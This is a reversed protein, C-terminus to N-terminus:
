MCLRHLIKREWHSNKTVSFSYIIQGLFGRVVVEKFFTKLAQKILILLYWTSKGRLKGFNEPFNIKVLGTM